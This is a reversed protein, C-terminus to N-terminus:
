GHDGLDVGVGRCAPVGRPRVNHPHHGFIQSQGPSHTRVRTARPCEYGASQKAIPRGAPTQGAWNVYVAIGM